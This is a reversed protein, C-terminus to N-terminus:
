AAGAEPQDHLLESCAGNAAGIRAPQMVNSTGASRGGSAPRTESAGAPPQIKM